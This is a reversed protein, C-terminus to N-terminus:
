LKQKRENTVSGKVVREFIESFDVDEIAGYRNVFYNRMYDTTNRVPTKGNTKFDSLSYLSAAKTNKDKEVFKIEDRRFLQSNLFIPNHTNFILQAKNINIEDNHFSNIINMIIMPHLSSDLEDMVLTAGRQLAVLIYPTIGILRLTGASEILESPLGIIHDNKKEFVSILQMKDDNKVYCFDTGIIGAEKAIDNINDDIFAENKDIDVVPRLNKYNSKNVVIFNNTLWLKINNVIKKSYYSDFDTTLFLRTEQLNAIAVELNKKALKPDFQELLLDSIKTLSNITINNKTREFVNYDNVLLRESIINRKSKTNFLGLDMKLEYNYKNNEYTFEIEFEVPKVDNSFAFPILYMNQSVYDDYRNDEVDDINGRLIIQKFCSMANIISTKGAANPGYIVSSCLCKAKKNAYGDELVSYSIDQITDPILSFVADDKFTKFNKCRFKLLM